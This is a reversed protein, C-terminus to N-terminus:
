PEDVFQRVLGPLLIVVIEVFLVRLYEIAAVRSMGHCLMILNSIYAVWLQHFVNRRRRENFHDGERLRFRWLRTM